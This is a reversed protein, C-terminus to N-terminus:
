KCVNKLFKPPCKQERGAPPPGPPSPGGVELDMWGYIKKFVTWGDTFIKPWFPKNGSLGEPYHPNKLLSIVNELM